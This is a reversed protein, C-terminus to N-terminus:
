GMELDNRNCAVCSRELFHRQPPSGNAISHGIQNAWSKLRLGGTESVFANGVMRISISYFQCTLLSNQTRGSAIKMWSVFCQFPMIVYKMIADCFETDHFINNFSNFNQIVVM